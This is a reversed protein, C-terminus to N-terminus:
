QRRELITMDTHLCRLNQCRSGSQWQKIRIWACLKMLVHICILLLIASSAVARLAFREPPSYVVLCACDMAISIWSLNELLAKVLVIKREHGASIRCIIRLCLLGVILFSTSSRGRYGYGYGYGYSVWKGGVTLTEKRCVCSTCEGSLTSSALADFGTYYPLIISDVYLSAHLIGSITSANYIAYKLDREAAMCDVAIASIQILQLMSPGICSLPFITSIRRGNSLALLTMPLSIPGNPLMFRRLRQASFNRTVKWHFLTELLMSILTAFYSAISFSAVLIDVSPPYNSPNGPSDCYYHFPCNIPDMTEELQWRTCKFFLSARAAAENNEELQWNIM